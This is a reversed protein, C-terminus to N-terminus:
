PDVSSQGAYLASAVLKLLSPIELKKPGLGRVRPRAHRLRAPPARRPSSPPRAACPAPPQRGGGGTARQAARLRERGRRGGCLPGEAAPVAFIDGFTPRTLMPLCPEARPLGSRSSES